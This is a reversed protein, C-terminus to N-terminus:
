KTGCLHNGGSKDKLESIQEPASPLSPFISSLHPLLDHYTIVMTEDHHDGIM